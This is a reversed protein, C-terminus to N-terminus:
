TNKKLNTRSQGNVNVEWMILFWYLFTLLYLTNTLIQLKMMNKAAIKLPIIHNLKIIKKCQFKFTLIWRWFMLKFGTNKNNKHAAQRGADNIICAGIESSCACHYQHKCKLKLKFEWRKGWNWGVIM